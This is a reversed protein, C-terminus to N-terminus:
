AAVATVIYQWPLADEVAVVPDIGSAGAMLRIAPLYKERAPEDIIRASGGSIQFGAEQLMALMAGRTFVRRRSKDLGDAGYRLDGANLRAQVSWHQFNRVTAVLRGGPAISTRIKQLLLWPDDLQELAEDLVWCNAGRVHDWFDPGATEIRDNFVFDCHPRAAHARVPDAEIGTYHCIPNRQRYAKAFAGDGCGVEVLKRAELPVFQLLDTNIVLTATPLDYHYGGTRIVTGQWPHKIFYPPDQGMFDDRVWQIHKFLHTNGSHNLALMTAILPAGHKIPLPWQRVVDINALICAPHLYDIAGDPRDYGQENVPQTSGVGYMGPRLEAHLAELFGDNVIEVDSDLFLVEGTLGLHNIAWALGPGHHINYGFPIFEINDYKDTIARIKEAVDPNSGDIVYVRNGYFQRLTRLLAEILDPANYSVTVIPIQDIRVSAAAPEMAPRVAHQPAALRPAAPKAVRQLAAEFHRVFRPSDFLPCTVRNAALQRKMAAIRAPDAALAVALEEYDAFNYTILQPLDVARLLSGAMRSSFTQGACTILPLGAWLADSATTGANFPYTDLFLDALQYRALYEAPVARTNFILRQRDIGAEEAYRWLNDRVEPYDAVLWLVSNPVRRLINMWTAFVDATFKFNNNFSCFVFADDPLSVSARTPTPAIPRQRDNIQFADPMYLPQESFHAAMEPTILFEDAVVYDIGPLGTSGPFGLYTMQVPAPRYALINPRAGLTLGHLDVLIDIEHARITRAAQEDTMADIRIYHDMAKVVRARLPSGDERSWSFAYVEVKSRDHLEYLEATLISVAHSCFDSSLYGIRLRSHGYGYAGTLPAVAANVKDAVFRRAAALQQAPDDSASLMALASTGELMTAQSIHELGSYVPWACQKQRLHVWHTMVNAQQPDVHLSRALMAEAEPYRKRIELLRGLNNLTQVHLAPTTKIDPELGGDLIAQWTALAEEPRGTRELLSGLNLRAEVFNPNSAMAQRLAAEAGAEDGANSLVVALNFCAAYILPTDTHAIWSRYLAITAPVQGSETLVAAAGFLDAISLAGRAALAMVNGLPSSDESVAPVQVTM